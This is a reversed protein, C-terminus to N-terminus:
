PRVFWTLHTSVILISSMGDTLIWGQGAADKREFPKSPNMGLIESALTGETEDVDEIEALRGKERSTLTGARHKTFLQNREHSLESVAAQLSGLLAHVAEGDNRKAQAGFNLTRTVATRVTRVCTTLNETAEALARELEAVLSDINPGGSGSAEEQTSNRSQPVFAEGRSKDANRKKRNKGSKGMSIALLCTYSSLPLLHCTFFVHEM